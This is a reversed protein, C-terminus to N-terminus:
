GGFKNVPEDGYGCIVMEEVVEIAESQRVHEQEDDEPDIVSQKALDLVIQLAERMDMFESM